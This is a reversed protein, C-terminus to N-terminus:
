VGVEPPECPYWCAFRHGDVGDAVLPPYENRCREAAAPCRPAFRCGAPLAAFNPPQDPINPLRRQPPDDIRPIAEFLARTYRMRMRAFVAATPGQEVIRGAYMVAIDHSRGAVVGLDHSVLIIAMNRERQIRSLLNLIEAQVNVDLATTPEDAILLKPDCALAIAIAVRQRMGGSLQHPYCSLREGPHPIGVLRLLALARERAESARIGLHYRMPEGIQKEITMVPNLSSLPDQLVVGIERGRIRNMEKASCLGTDHGAFCIRGQSPVLGLVARCLMSKGSGSEGVLALTKGREVSLSVSDVPRIPGAGTALEVTLNEVALLQRDSGTRAAHFEQRGYGTSAAECEQRVSGAGAAECGQRDTATM